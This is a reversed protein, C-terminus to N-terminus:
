AIKLTSIENESKKEEEKFNRWATKSLDEEDITFIHPSSL